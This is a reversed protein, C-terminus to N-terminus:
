TRRRRRAHTRRPIHAGLYKIFQYAGYETRDTAVEIIMSGEPAELTTDSDVRFTECEPKLAGRTYSWCRQGLKDTAEKCMYRALTSYNKEKDVRLPTIEIEGQGWLKLLQKYDDGTANIVCHHHWRGAGSVHECNWFMVFPQGAKRREASLKQRFYKLKAKAEERSRPLHRDDYTLTVILDGPLFNAALMLELKQYSYKANMRKQAESSLKRKSARARPSDHRACGPYVTEMVLPGAVIIKKWKTKAM